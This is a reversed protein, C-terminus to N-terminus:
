KLISKNQDIKRQNPFTPKLVTYLMYFNTKNIDRNILKRNIPHVERVLTIRSFLSFKFNQSRLTKPYNHLFNKHSTSQGCLSHSKQKNAQEKSPPTPTGIKRQGGKKTKNENRRTHSNLIFVFVM